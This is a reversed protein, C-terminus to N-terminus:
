PLIFVGVGNETNYLGFQVLFKPSM